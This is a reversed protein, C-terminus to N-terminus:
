WWGRINYVVKPRNENYSVAVDRAAKIREKELAEAANLRRQEMKHLNREREKSDAYEREKINQVKQKIQDMLAVAEKYCAAETDIQGLLELADDAADGPYPDASWLARAESLLQSASRDIGSKYIEKMMEMADNYSKCEQPIVSLEAMAEEYKRSKQLMKAKAIITPANADFYDTIRKKSQTILTKLEPTVRLNKFASLMAAQETQGRGKVEATCTGFCTGDIGDGIAFTVLLNQGIQPPAGPAVYRDLQSARIALIFRSNDASQLGAQSILTRLRSSIVQTNNADLGGTTADVYPTLQIQATMGLTMALAMVTALLKKKM